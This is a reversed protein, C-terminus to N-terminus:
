SQASAGDMWQYMLDFSHKGLDIHHGSPDKPNDFRSGVRVGNITVSIQNLAKTKSESFEVQNRFFDAIMRHAHAEEAPSPIANQLRPANSYQSFSEILAAARPKSLQEEFDSLSIRHTTQNFLLVTVEHLDGRKYHLANVTLITTALSVDFLKAEHRDKALGLLRELQEMKLHDRKM